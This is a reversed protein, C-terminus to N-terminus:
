IPEPLAVIQALLFGDGQGHFGLMRATSMTASNHPRDEVDVDDDGAQQGRSSRRGTNQGRPDLASVVENDRGHEQLLELPGEAIALKPLPDALRLRPLQEVEKATLSIKPLIRGRWWRHPRRIRAVVVDDSERRLGLRDDNGTVPM